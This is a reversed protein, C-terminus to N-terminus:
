AATTVTVPWEYGSHLQALGTTLARAGPRISCPSQPKSWWGPMADNAALLETKTRGPESQCTESESQNDRLSM